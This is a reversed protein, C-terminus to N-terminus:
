YISCISIDHQWFVISSLTISSQYLMGLWPKLKYYMLLVYPNKPTKQCFLITFVLTWLHLPIRMIISSIIIIITIIIIIIIIFIIIIIIIISNIIINIELRVNGAPETSQVFIPAFLVIFM